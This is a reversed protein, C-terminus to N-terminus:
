PLMIYAISTSDGKILGFKERNEGGFLSISGLGNMPFGEYVSGDRNFLFVQGASAASIYNSGGISHWACNQFPKESGYRFLTLGDITKASLSAEGGTIWDPVGDSNVDGLAVSYLPGGVDPGSSSISGDARLTKLKGEQDLFVAILSDSRASDNLIVLQDSSLSERITQLREGFRDTLIAQGKRDLLLFRSSSAFYVPTTVIVDPLRFSANGQVPLGSLVYNYQRLNMCPISYMVETGAKGPKYFAMGASAEAPLRFPYRGVDAGSSDLLYVFSHTNFLYQVANNGGYDVAHVEGQLSTELKKSWRLNGQQDIAYLVRDVDQVLVLGKNGAPAFPGVAIAADLKYNWAIQAASTGKSFYGICGRTDFVGDKNSISLTVGNWNQIYDHYQTLWKVWAPAAIGAFIKESQPIDCFFLLNGERHMSSEMAKFRPQTHLLNGSKYDNILARLVSAQNAVVLFRGAQIYYFRNLRNFLSGFVAPLLGKRDVHRIVYGSYSEQLAAGEGALKQLTCMALTTDRMSIFAVYNNETLRAVPQTVLLAMENGMWSTFSAAEAPPATIQGQKIRFASLRELFLNPRDFNWSILASTKVPLLRLVERGSPKMESFIDMFTSLSDGSISEGQYSIQNPQVNLHMLSWEGLRDLHQLDVQERSNIQTKMFRSMGAYRLAVAFRRQGENVWKSIAPPLGTYSTRSHQRIVDELLFTTTSGTLIGQIEIWSFTEAQANSCEYIRIGQYVREAAVSFGPLLLQMVEAAHVGSGNLDLYYLVGFAGPGTAHGSLTFPSTKFVTGLLPNGQALSDLKMLSQYWTHLVEVTDAGKFFSTQALKRMDGTTPDAQIIFTVDQPILGALNGQKERYFQYYLFAGAIILLILVSIISSAVVRKM